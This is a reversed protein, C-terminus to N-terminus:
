LFELPHGILQVESRPLSNGAELGVITNKPIFFAVLM